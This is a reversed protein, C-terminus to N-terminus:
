DFLERNTDLTPDVTVTIPEASCDRCAVTFKGHRLLRYGNKARFSTSGCKVCKVRGKENTDLNPNESQRLTVMGKPTDLSSHKDLVVEIPELKPRSGSDINQVELADTYQRPKPLDYIVGNRAASRVLAYYKRDSNLYEDWQAELTKKEGSTRSYDIGVQIADQLYVCNFQSLGAKTWGPYTTVNALQGIILINIGLSRGLSVANMVDKCLAKAEKLDLHMVLAQFEDIIWFMPPHKPITVGAKMAQEKEQNRQTYVDVLRNLGEYCDEFGIYTPQFIYGGLDIYSVEDPKPQLFEIICNPVQKAVLGLYNIALETKGSGKPAFIALNEESKALDVLWEKQRYDLKEEVLRGDVAIEVCGKRVRTKPTDELWTIVSPLQAAVAEVKQPSIGLGLNRFVWVTVGEQETEEIFRLHIGEEQYVLILTKIDEQSDGLLESLQQHKSDVAALEKILADQNAKLQTNAKTLTEIDRLMRNPDLSAMEAKQSALELKERSIQDRLRMLESVQLEYSKTDRRAEVLKQELDYCEQRLEVITADKDATLDQIEVDKANLGRKLLEIQKENSLWKSYYQDTTLLKTKYEAIEEYLETARNAQQVIEPVDRVLYTHWLALNIIIVELDVGKFWEYGHVPQLKEFYGDRPILITNDYRGLEEVIDRRNRQNLYHEVPTNIVEDDARQLWTQENGVSAFLKLM